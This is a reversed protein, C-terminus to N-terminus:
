KLVRHENYKCYVPYLDIRRKIVILHLYRLPPSRNGPIHDVFIFWLALGRFFDLRLDREDSIKVQGAM